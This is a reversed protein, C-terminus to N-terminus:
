FRELDMSSFYYDAFSDVEALNVCEIKLLPNKWFLIGNDETEKKLGFCLGGTLATNGGTITRQVLNQPILGICAADEPKLYYGFGGALVVRDIKEMPIGYQETLIRIGAMIAGKALQIARISQQTVHVGNIHVGDEFFRGQLLGTADLVNERLLEALISVMDAGWVGRNVGGEFAPGAATSATIIRDCNGLVLEGNTGLDILLTIKKQRTMGCAMIGATIDGGVFASLAPFLYTRIGEIETETEDMHSVHFPAEGLERPDWGMMLYTMTTNAAIVLQRIKERPIQTEFQALGKKLCELVLSRMKVASNNDRNVAAIRSLVDAGFEAQPNLSVFRDICDGKANHLQMAITTTGIDATVLGVDSEGEDLERRVRGSEWLPMVSLVDSAATTNSCRGCGTCIDCKRRKAYQENYM